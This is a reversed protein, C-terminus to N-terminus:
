HLSPMNYDRVSSFDETEAALPCAGSLGVIPRTGLSHDGKCVTRVIRPQLMRAVALKWIFLRRQQEFGLSCMGM